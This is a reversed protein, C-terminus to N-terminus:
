LAVTELGLRADSEEISLKIENLAMLLDTNEFDNLTMQEIIEFNKYKISKNKEKYGIQSDVSKGNKLIVEESIDNFIKRIASLSFYNEISYRELQYATIQNNQCNALFTNRAIKSGPDSDVIAFINPRGSFVSLDLDGMIDGGLPWFKINYKDLVGLWKLLKQLVPIDKPGETLIIADSTINETVSYGLSNVIKSLSTEDSIRVQEDYWCYYIKDVNYVDLFSNSHTSLLFQKNEISNIFSLLRKQFDAHLHNEPEEIFYFNYNTTLIFTIMILLDGLGLGCDNADLWEDGIRFLLKLRNAKESIINFSYGTIDHFYKDIDKYTRYDKSKWHQNKLFFLHNICGNGSSNITEDSNLDCVTKLIRKPPILIPHYPSKSSTFVAKIINEYNFINQGYGKLFSGKSAYEIFNDKVLEQDKEFLKHTLIFEDFFGSMAAISRQPAPDSYRRAENEVYENFKKRSLEIGVSYYINNCLGEMITSKGSSNRGCIVNTHGLDTIFLEKIGKYKTVSINKIM